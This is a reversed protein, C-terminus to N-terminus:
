GHPPRCERHEGRAASLEDAGDRRGQLCPGRGQQGGGCVHRRLGQHGRQTLAISEALEAQGAKAAMTNTDLIALTDASDGFASIAEYLGGTLGTTGTGYEVALDQVADRLDEVRATQGPILTAVNAMGENLESSFSVVTAGAAAFASGIAGVATAM